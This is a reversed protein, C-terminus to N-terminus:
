EQDDCIEAEQELSNAIPSNQAEYFRAMALCTSRCRHRQYGENALRGAEEIHRRAEDDNKNKSQEILYGVMMLYTRGVIMPDPVQGSNRNIEMAQHLLTEGREQNGVAFCQEAENTLRRVTDRVSEPPPPVADGTKAKEWADLMEGANNYLRNGMDAALAARIVIGLAPSQKIEEHRELLPFREIQRATLHLDRLEARKEEDTGRLHRGVEAFPNINTLMEYFILGLMYVDSQPSSINHSFSEPALYALDGGSEVWGLLTDVEVALGFDTIKIVDPGNKRRLILINDPKLDRHAISIQDGDARVLGCHMYAVAKLIQDFYAVARTLPFPGVRLCTRLSEPVFEMVVYPHGALSGGEPCHGADYVTVFHERLTADLANFALKSLLLLYYVLYM